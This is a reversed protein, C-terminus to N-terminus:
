LVDRVQFFGMFEGIMGEADGVSLLEAPAFVGMDLKSDEGRYRFELDM